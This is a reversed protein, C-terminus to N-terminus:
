ITLIPVIAMAKILELVFLMRAIIIDADANEVKV